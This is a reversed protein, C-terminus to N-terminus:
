PALHLASLLFREVEFNFVAPQEFYVISHGADPVCAYRANPVLRSAARVIEPPQLIDEAGVLFLM